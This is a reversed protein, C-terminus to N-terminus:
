GAEEGLCDQQQSDESLLLIALAAFRVCILPTVLSPPVSEGDM